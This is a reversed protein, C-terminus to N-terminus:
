DGKDKSKIFDELADDILGLIVCCEEHPYKKQKIDKIIEDKLREVALKLDKTKSISELKNLKFFGKYPERKYLQSKCVFYIKNELPEPNM